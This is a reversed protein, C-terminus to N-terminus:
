LAKKNLFTLAQAIKKKLKGIQSVDKVMGSAKSMRVNFLEKKLVNIENKLAETDLHKLEKKDM